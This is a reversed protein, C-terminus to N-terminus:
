TVLLTIILCTIWNMCLEAIWRIQNTRILVISVTVILLLVLWLIVLHSIFVALLWILLLIQLLIISIWSSTAVSVIRNTSDHILEHICDVTSVILIVLMIVRVVGLMVSIMEIMLVEATYAIKIPMPSLWASRVCSREIVMLTSYKWSIEPM